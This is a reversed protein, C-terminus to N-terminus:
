RDADRVAAPTAASKAWRVPLEWVGRIFMSERWRLESADVALELRDFHRLLAALAIRLEARALEAGLCYHRGHGFALHGRTDRGATRGADRGTSRDTARDPDFTDPDAFVAPDRNAADTLAVVVEGARVVRGGLVTDARVLHPMGGTTNLSTWRLMEEVAAAIREPEARLRAALAPDQLLLLVCMALQNGTTEYGAMLLGSTLVTIEDPSLSRDPDGAPRRLLDTLLDDAGQGADLARRKAAALEQFYAHMRTHAAAVEEPHHGSTSMLIDTLARLQEGDAEPVGLLGCMFRLPFPVTLAQVLDTEGSDAGGTLDTLLRDALAELGPGAARARRATFAHLVSRRRRTHDPADATALSLSAARRALLPRGAYGARSFRDDTLVTSVDAHRTVLLARRGGALLVPAPEGAALLHRYEAPPCVGAGVPFPFPIPETM